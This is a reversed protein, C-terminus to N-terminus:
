GRWTTCSTSPTRLSIVFINDSNVRYLPMPFSQCAEVDVRSVLEDSPEPAVFVEGCFESWVWWPTSGM